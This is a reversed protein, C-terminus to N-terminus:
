TIRNTDDTESTTTRLFLAEERARIVLVFVHKSFDYDHHMLRVDNKPTKNPTMGLIELPSTKKTKM